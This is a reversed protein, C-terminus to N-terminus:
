FDQADVSSTVKSGWNSRSEYNCSAVQHAIALVSQSQIPKDVIYDPALEPIEPSALSSPSGYFARRQFFCGTGLYNPGSLGDFGMVNIQYLRKFEANYIDSKNIGRFIQPFQVYALQPRTEPDSLYCMARLPTEPDNSCSDCDLTLIIPANTM